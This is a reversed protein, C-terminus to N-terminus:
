ILNHDAFYELLGFESTVIPNVDHAVKANNEGCVISVEVQYNESQNLSLYHEHSSSHHIESGTHYNVYHFQGNQYYCFEDSLTGIKENSAIEYVDVAYCQSSVAGPKLIFYSGNQFNIKNLTKIQQLDLSKFEGALSSFAPDYKKYEFLENGLQNTLVLIYQTPMELNEVVKLLNFESPVAIDVRTEPNHIHLQGNCFYYGVKSFKGIVGKDEIAIETSNDDSQIIKLQYKKEQYANSYPTTPLIRQEIDKIEEEIDKIAQAAKEANGQAESASSESKKAFNQSEDRADAAEEAANEAKIRSDEVRQAVKRSTRQANLSDSGIQQISQEIAQVIEQVKQQEENVQMSIDKVESEMHIVQSNIKEIEKVTKEESSDVMNKTDRKVRNVSESMDKELIRRIDHMTLIETAEESANEEEMSRKVRHAKRSIDSKDRNLNSYRQAIEHLSSISSDRASAAVEASSKAQSAFGKAEDRAAEASKQATEAKQAAAEAQKKADEIDKQNAGVQAPSATHPASKQIDDKLEEIAEETQKLSGRVNIAKQAHSRQFNRIISEIDVEPYKEAFAKIILETNNPDTLIGIIKQEASPSKELLKDILLLPDTIKDSVIDKANNSGVEQVLKDAFRNKNVGQIKDHIIQEAANGGIAGILEEVVKDPDVKDVVARMDVKDTVKRVARDEVSRKNIRKAVELVISNGSTRDLLEDAVNEQFNQDGKLLDKLWYTIRTSLSKNRGSSEVDIIAEGLESVKQTVLEDAVAKVTPSIGDRGSAGKQGEQGRPGQIGPDGKVSDRFGQDSKLLDKINDKFVEDEEVQRKVRNVITSVGKEKVQATSFAASHSDELELKKQAYDEISALLTLQLPEIDPLPFKYFDSKSTKNGNEDSFYGYRNGNKSEITFYESDAGAYKIAADSANGGGIFKIQSTATDFYPYVVPLEGIIGNNSPTKEDIHQVQIVYKGKGSELENGQVLKLYKQTHDYDYQDVGVLKGDKSLINRTDFAISVLAKTGMTVTNQPILSSFRYIALLEQEKKVWLYDTGKDLLYSQIDKEDTTSPYGGLFEDKGPDSNDFYGPSFNFIDSISVNSALTTIKVKDHNEKSQNLPTIGITSASDQELKCVIKINNNPIFM